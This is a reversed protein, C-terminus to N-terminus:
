GDLEALSCGGICAAPRGDADRGYAEVRLLRAAHPIEASWRAVGERIPSEERVIVRHQSKPFNAAAKLALDPDDSGRVPLLGAEDVCETRATEFFLVARGEVLGPLEALVSGADLSITARSPRRVELAPDGLLNYLRAHMLRHDELTTPWRMAVAIARSMGDIEADAGEPSLLSRTATLEAEGVTRSGGGLLAATFNKQFIANGYPHTPRSGALVTVSGGREFLIAEALSREGRPFDFWGVSCCTFLSVPTRPVAPRVTGELDSKRLIPYGRDAWVLRDLGMPSGHGIYNFLLAGSDLAELAIQPLRDPPPCYRSTAKAYAARVDFEGPVMTEVMRLFMTELVRDMPGFRGEGAIYSIRGLWPGVEDDQEYLRVKQLAALADATSRAPIRGLAWDPREDRDDALQYPHDSAFSSDRRDALTEDRQEFRWAPIADSDGLLLVMSGEPTDALAERIEARIAVPQAGAGVEVSRVDWGDGRYEAWAAVAPALEVPAVILYIPPPSALAAACALALM